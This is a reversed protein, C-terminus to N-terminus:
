TVCTLSVHPIQTQILKSVQYASKFVLSLNLTIRLVLDLGKNSKEM